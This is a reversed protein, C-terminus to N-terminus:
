SRTTGFTYRAGAAPKSRGASSVVSVAVTGPAHPPTLARLEGASVPALRLARTDGFYVALAKGLDKGRVTVWNRGATPGKTPSVASVAPVPVAPVPVAGSSGSAASAAGTKTQPVKTAVPAGAAAKAAPARYAHGATGFRPTRVAPAAVPSSHAGAALPPRAPGPTLAAVVVAVAAAAAGLVALGEWKRRRRRALLREQLKSRAGAPLDIPVGAGGAAVGAGGAAVGAGGAAVGAGGAAVGAGGAAVGAGTGPAPAGAGAVPHAGEAGRALLPAHGHSVGPPGAVVADGEVAPRALLAEELRARLAAPLPRPRGSGQLLVELEQWEPLGPHEPGREPM